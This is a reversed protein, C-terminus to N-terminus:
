HFVHQDLVGSLSAMGTGSAGPATITVHNLVFASAVADLPLGQRNGGTVHYNV